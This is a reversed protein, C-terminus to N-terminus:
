VKRRRSPMHVIVDARERSNKKPTTAMSPVESSMSSEGDDEGTTDDVQPELALVPNFPIHLPDPETNWHEESFVARIWKNPIAMHYFNWAASRLALGIQSSIDYDTACVPTITGGLAKVEWAVAAERCTVGPPTLFAAGSAQLSKKRVIRFELVHAMEHCLLLALTAWSVYKQFIPVWEAKCNRLLKFDLLVVDRDNNLELSTMAWEGRKEYMGEDMDIFPIVPRILSLLTGKTAIPVDEDRVFDCNESRMIFPAYYTPYSLIIRSALRLAPEIAEYYGGKGSFRCKKQDFPNENKLNPLINVLDLTPDFLGSVKFSMPVKETIQPITYVFEKTPSSPVADHGLPPDEVIGTSDM